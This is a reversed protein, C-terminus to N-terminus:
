KLLSVHNAMESENKWSHVTTNGFIVNYTIIDDSECIHFKYM